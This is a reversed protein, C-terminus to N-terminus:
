PAQRTVREGRAPSDDSPSDDLFTYHAWQGRIDWASCYRQCDHARGVAASVDVVNVKRPDDVGCPGVFGMAPPGGRGYLRSYLRLAWDCSNVAVLTEDLLSLAQGASADPKLAGADVAAALLVARVPNRKGDRWAAVTDAPLSQGAAQGGALLHMAGVIIRPGFSHGVLSVKVGPRRQQLWAALRWSEADAYDAKLQVDARNRRCVRDAPWSWIM